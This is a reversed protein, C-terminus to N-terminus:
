RDRRPRPLRQPFTGRRATGSARISARLAGAGLAGALVLGSAIRWGAHHIAKEIERTGRINIGNGPGPQAATVHELAELLRTARMRFRAFESALKRPDMEQRLRDLMLRSVFSGAVAVPDLTPDLEAVALQMQAMAKSSLVLSAPLKVSYRLATQTMEQLVVGLSIEALPADHYRGLLEGLEKEFGPGVPPGGGALTLAVDALLGPDNRWLAFLLLSLLERTSADIEGIMGLDLFYLRDDRWVFNGPHPDAHFFGVGIVQHFYSELLQRAAETRAAGVPVADIPLGEIEEMVLVRSTSLEAHLRPVGLRPFTQLVDHMRTLSAAEARFDLERVLSTSLHGVVGAVDILQTIGARKEAKRAFASLLELDQEIDARANPRQIKVVVREGAALTASHVQAITGAALPQPDISEFVDEWPVGLEAELVGVVQEQSLPSVHDQLTALEEIIEPPLLDPRTSLAQGIKAFAPGMEDLAARLQQAFSRRAEADGLGGRLAENLHHKRIIRFLDRARATLYPKVQASDSFSSGRRDNPTPTDKGTKLIVVSFPCLHSVRNPVNGLLFKKRGTMGASGVVVLDPEVEVAVRVIARAPDDDVLVRARGSPGALRMALQALDLEVEEPTAAEPAPEPSLVRVLVLEADNQSALAAAWGVAENAAASGDTAVLIRRPLDGKM